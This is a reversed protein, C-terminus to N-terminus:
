ATITYIEFFACFLNTLIFFSQVKAGRKRFLLRSSLLENVYQLSIYSTLLPQKKLDNDRGFRSPLCVSFVCVLCFFRNKCQSICFSSRFCSLCFFFL